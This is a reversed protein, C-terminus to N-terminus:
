GTVQLLELFDTLNAMKNRSKTGFLLYWLYHKFLNNFHKLKLPQFHSKYNEYTENLTVM